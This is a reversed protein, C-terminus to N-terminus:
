RRRRSRRQYGSERVKVFPLVAALRARKVANAVMRQHKSCNGNIRSSIIRGRDSTFKSLLNEDMFDIKEIKDRCLRCPRKKVMRSSKSMSRRKAM